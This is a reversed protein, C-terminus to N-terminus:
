QPWLRLEYPQDAYRLYVGSEDIGYVTWGDIIEGETVWRASEEASGYFLAARSQPQIRVGLLKATFSPAVTGAPEPQAAEVTAAQALPRRSQLFPPREVFDAFQDLPPPDFAGLPALEATSMRGGGTATPAAADAGVVPPGREIHENLLLLGAGLVLTALLRSRATV